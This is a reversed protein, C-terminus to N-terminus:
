SQEIFQVFFTAWGWEQLTSEILDVEGFIASRIISKPNIIGMFGCRMSLCCFCASISGDQGGDIQPKRDDDKFLQRPPLLSPHQRKGNTGWDSWIGLKLLERANASKKWTQELLM